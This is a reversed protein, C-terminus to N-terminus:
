GGVGAHAHVGQERALAVGHQVQAFPQLVDIVFERFTSTGFILGLHILTINKAGSASRPIASNTVMPPSITFDRHFQSVGASKPQGGMVKQCASPIMTSHRMRNPPKPM